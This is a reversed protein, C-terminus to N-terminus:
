KQIKTKKIGFEEIKNNILNSLSEAIDANGMISDKFEWSKILLIDGELETEYKGIVLGDKYLIFDLENNKRATILKVGEAQEKKHLTNTYSEVKLMDNEESKACKEQFKDKYIKSLEHLTIAPHNGAALAQPKNSKKEKKGVAIFFGGTSRILKVDDGHLTGVTTITDIDAPKLDM